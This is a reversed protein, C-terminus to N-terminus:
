TGRRVSGALELIQEKTFSPPTMLRFASGDALRAQVMWFETAQFLDAPRGRVTVKTAKQLGEMEEARFLPQDAPAWQVYFDNEPDAPDRYTLISEDKFGALEWGAPILGVTVEFRLRQPKDQVTEALAVLAQETGYRHHGTLRLWQGPRHEWVLVLPPLGDPATGSFEIIRGERGGVEVSKGGTPEDAGALYVDSRDDALYVAIVPGGPDATFVARGLGPLTWPFQPTRAAVLRIGGTRAPGKATAPGEATATGAPEPRDAFRPLTVGAVVVAAALGLGSVAVGLRRTLLPRRRAPAPDIADLLRARAADLAAGSPPPADPGYSDLLEIDNM